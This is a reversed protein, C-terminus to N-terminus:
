SVQVNRSYLYLINTVVKSFLTILTKNKASNKCNHIFILYVNTTYIKSGSIKHTFKVALPKINNLFSM